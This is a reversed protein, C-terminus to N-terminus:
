DSSVITDFQIADFSDCNLCDVFFEVLKYDNPNGDTDAGALGDFADDVYEVDATISFNFVGKSVEKYSAIEGSIDEGEIGINEYALNRATEIQQSALATAIIRIQSNRILGFATTYVLYISLGILMFIGMAVMTEIISFGQAKCKVNLM